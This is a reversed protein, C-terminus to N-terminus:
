MDTHLIHIVPLQLNKLLSNNTEYWASECLEARVNNLSNNEM